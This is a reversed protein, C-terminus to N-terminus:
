ISEAFYAKLRQGLEYVEFVWDGNQCEGLDSFDVFKQSSDDEDRIDSSIEAISGQIDALRSNIIESSIYENGNKLLAVSIVTIVDDHDNCGDDVLVAHITGWDLAEVCEIWMRIESINMNWSSEVSVDERLTKRYIGHNDLFSHISAQQEKSFEMVKTIPYEIKLISNLHRCYKAITPPDSQEEFIVIREKLTLDRWGDAHLPAYESVDTITPEEGHPKVFLMAYSM